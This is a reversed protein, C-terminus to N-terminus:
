CETPIPLSIKQTSISSLFIMMPLELIKIPMTYDTDVYKLAYDAEVLFLDIKDDAPADAQNLLHQMWTIRIHTTMMQHLTGYLM